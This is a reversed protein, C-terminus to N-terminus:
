SATAGLMSTRNRLLPELPLKVSCALEGAISKQSPRGLLGLASANPLGRGRSKVVTV